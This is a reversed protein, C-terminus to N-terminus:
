ALLREFRYNVGVGEPKKTETYIAKVKNGQYDIEFVFKSQLVDCEIMSEIPFVFEFDNPLKYRTLLLTAFEREEPTFESLVGNHYLGITRESINWEYPYSSYEDKIDVGYVIEDLLDHNTDGILTDNIYLATDWSRRIHTAEINLWKLSAMASENYRNMEQVLAQLQDFNFEHVIKSVILVSKIQSKDNLNRNCYDEIFAMDLGSFKLHYFCRGPRNLIFNSIKYSANATLIFLKKSTYIGDFLSLIKNQKDVEDYVKDIEEFLIVCEQSINQIFEMFGPDSYARQIIITPMGKSLAKHSILKAMLTKGSGMVGSLMIGSSSDRAEYTSFIRNVDSEITGYLQSPVTFDLVKTLFYFGGMENLNLMYIAPELKEEIIGAPVRTYAGNSNSWMQPKDNESM